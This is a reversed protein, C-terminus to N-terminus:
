IEIIACGSIAKNKKLLKVRKSKMKEYFSDKLVSTKNKFLIKRTQKLGSIMDKAMKEDKWDKKTQLEMIKPIDKGDELITAKCDKNCYTKMCTELSQKEDKKTMKKSKNIRAIYAKKESSNMKKTFMKNMNSMFKEFEKPILTKCIKTECEKISNSNNKKSKSNTNPM